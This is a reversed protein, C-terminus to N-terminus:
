DLRKINEVMDNLASEMEQRDILLNNGDDKSAASWGLRVSARVPIGSLNM